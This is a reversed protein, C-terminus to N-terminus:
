QSMTRRFWHRWGSQAASGPQEAARLQGGYKWMRRYVLMTLLLLLVTLGLYLSRQWWLALMREQLLLYTDPKFGVSDFRLVWATLRRLPAAELIGGLTTLSYVWYAVYLLLAAVGNRLLLSLLLLLATGYLLTSCVVGGVPLLFDAWGFSLGAQTTLWAARGGVVLVLLLLLGGWTLVLGLYKGGVYQWPLVPRTHLLETVECQRDRQWVFAGLLGLGLAMILGVRDVFKWALYSSLGAIELAARAQAALDVMVNGDRMPGPIPETATAYTIYANSVPLLEFVVFAAMLLTVLWFTLSRWQMRWEYRAIHWLNNM